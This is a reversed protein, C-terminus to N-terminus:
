IYSRGSQCQGKIVGAGKSESGWEDEDEWTNDSVNELFLCRYIHLAFSSVFVLCFHMRIQVHVRVHAQMTCCFHCLVFCFIRVCCVHCLKMFMVFTLPRCATYLLRQPISGRGDVSERKFHAHFPSMRPAGCFLVHAYVHICHVNM